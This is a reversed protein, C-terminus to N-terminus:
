KLWLSLIKKFVTKIIVTGYGSFLVTIQSLLFYLNGCIRHLASWHLIESSAPKYNKNELFWFYFLFIWWHVIKKAIAYNNDENIFILEMVDILQLSDKRTNMSIFWIDNKLFADYSAIRYNYKTRYVFVM